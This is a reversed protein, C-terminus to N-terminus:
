WLGQQHDGTSGIDGDIERLSETINVLCQMALYHINNMIGAGPITHKTLLAILDHCLNSSYLDCDFNLWLEKIFWRSRCLDVLHELATKVFIDDMKLGYGAVRQSSSGDVTQTTPTMSAMSSVSQTEVDSSVGDNRMNVNPVTLQHM